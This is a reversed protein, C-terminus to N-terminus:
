VSITQGYVPLECTVGLREGLVQALAARPGAEGHTLVCRPKRGPGAPGDHHQGLVDSAWKVLVSQGAHASFGGLTHVKARVEVVQGLIRVYRERDVLRRGLTGRAQFGAIVVHTRADGLHHLLHHVIRGGTAMGAGAIVVAPGKMANVERSEQGSRLMRLGPFRLPRHGDKLLRRAEEDFLSPDLEYLRTAEIGLPTDVLVALGKPLRGAEYLRALDYILTQTRGVAFSPILVKGGDAAAQHIVEVLEDLTTDIPKHDRDGYTSELVVVDARPVRPAIPDRIIPTGPNGIDGSFVVRATRPGESLTVVVSASGIIHGSDVFRVSVGPAVQQEHEFPVVRMQRVLRTVDSELFLPECFRGPGCGREGRVKARRKADALQLEAADRLLLDTLPQTLRTCWVGGRYGERVVLPLRGTHDMHAHTVVVASLERPVFPLGRANRVLDSASGQFLGCDVLVRSRGARLLYCSGTVEGAAGYFSLEM